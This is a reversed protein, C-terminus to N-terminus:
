CPYCNRQTLAASLIITPRWQWEHALRGIEKTADPVGTGSKFFGTVTVWKPSACFLEDKGGLPNAASIQPLPESSLVFMRLGKGSPSAETYPGGLRGYLKKIEVVRPSQDDTLDVGDFDLAVLFKGDATKAPLVLGVGSRSPHRAALLSEEFTMWQAATQWASGTGDRGKPRKAFKGDPEPDGATWTIWQPIAMLLAPVKLDLAAALYRQQQNQHLSSM